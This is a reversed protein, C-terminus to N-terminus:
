RNYGQWLKYHTRSNILGAIVFFCLEALSLIKGHYVLVIVTFELAQFLYALRKGGGTNFKLFWFKVKKRILVSIIPFSIENSSM